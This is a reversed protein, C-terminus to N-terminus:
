SFYKDLNSIAEVSQEHIVGVYIDYTIRVSSHGLITSIVKIDCGSKFLRTAFTHRLAHVGITEDDETIGCNNLM